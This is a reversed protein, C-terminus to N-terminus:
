NQRAIPWHQAFNAWERELEAIIELKAVELEFKVLKPCEASTPRTRGVRVSMNEAM